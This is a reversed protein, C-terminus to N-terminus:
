DTTVKLFYQLAPERSFSDTCPTGVTGFVSEAVHQSAINNVSVCADVYFATFGFDRSVHTIETIAARLIEKAHGRGQYAKPTAYGVSFCRLGKYADAPAFMVFATVERRNFRVYTM